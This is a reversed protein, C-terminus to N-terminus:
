GNELICIWLKQQKKKYSYGLRLLPTTIYLNNKLRLQSKKEENIPKMLNLM